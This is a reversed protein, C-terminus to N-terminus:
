EDSGTLIVSALIDTGADSSFDAAVGFAMRKGEYGVGLTWHDIKEDLQPAWARELPATGTYYPVHAEDRWYGARLSWSHAESSTELIHEVG